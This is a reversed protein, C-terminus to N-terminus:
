TVAEVVLVAGKTGVFYDLADTSNAFLIGADANIRAVRAVARKWTGLGFRMREKAGEARLRGHLPPEGVICEVVVAFVTRKAGNEGVVVKSWRSVLLCTEVGTQHNLRRTRDPLIRFGADRHSSACSDRICM